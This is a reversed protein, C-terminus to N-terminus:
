PRLVPFQEPLASKDPSTQAESRTIVGMLCNNLDAEIKRPETYGDSLYQKFEGKKGFSFYYLLTPIQKINFIHSIDEKDKAKYLPFVITHEQAFKKVVSSRWWRKEEEDFSVGLFQVSRDKYIQYLANLEILQRRSPKDWTAWFAVVVVDGKHKQITQELETSTILTQGFVIGPLFMAISIWSFLLMNKGYSSFYM